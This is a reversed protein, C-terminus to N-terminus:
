DCFRSDSKRRGKQRKQAVVNQKSQAVVKRDNVILNSFSPSKEFPNKDSKAVLDNGRIFIFFAKV